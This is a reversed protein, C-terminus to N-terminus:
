GIRSSIQLYIFVAEFYPFLSADIAWSRLILGIIRPRQWHVWVGGDDFRGEACM